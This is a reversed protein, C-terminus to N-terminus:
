VAGYIAVDKLRSPSANSQAQMRVSVRTGLPIQIPFFPSFPHGEKINGQFMVSYDALIIQEFSAAGIAVDILYGSDSSQLVRNDGLALYFGKLDENTSSTIEVYSGKTNATAGPDITVAGSTATDPGYAVIKSIGVPNLFSGSFGIASIRFIKSVGDAQSRVSIRTGAPISIPIEIYDSIRGTVVGLVAFLINPIIVTESAAAGIGIDILHEGSFSSLNLVLKEYDFSTSAIMETWSGKTNATGGSTIQQGKSAATDLSFTESRVESGGVTSWDAM